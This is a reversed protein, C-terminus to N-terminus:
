ENELGNGELKKINEDSRSNVARKKWFNEIKLKDRAKKKQVRKRLFIAGTITSMILFLVPTIILVLISPRIMITIIALIVIPAFRAFLM